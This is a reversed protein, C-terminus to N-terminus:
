SNVPDSLCVEDNEKLTTIDRSIVLHQGPVVDTTATYEVSRKEGDGGVLTVTDRETGAQKFANWATELNFSDPLFEELSRGLLEQREVGYVNAAEPNADIIQRNDDLLIMADFAGEFSAQYRDRAKVLKVVDQRADTRPSRPISVTMTTGDDTATAEVFGDHTTVIWHVLWLGLGSGHILPTEIGSKLTEREPESLGPGDDVVCIEVANPVNEVTIRVAPSEGAHKAANEVLEQIAREFTPLLPAVVEGDGEFTFSASPYNTRVSEVVHEVLAVVDTHQHEFEETVFRELERAKQSLEILEDVQRFIPEVHRDDAAQDALSYAHGRIVSMGNRLNHRLVRNFVNVLNTHRLLEAEHSKRELERELLRTILEAFMTESDSFAERRPDSAVFCVTGYPEGDLYLTTGHYCHLGHAEFAPDDAWGQTPADHLAIPGGSEITRRCYTTELDLEMGPPFQGDPGDTSVVAEWHDTVSDIRTLHGNDAGLYQLGLELAVRAKEEFPADGRIVEYLQERAAQATLETDSMTNAEGSNLPLYTRSRHFLNTGIDSGSLHRELSM